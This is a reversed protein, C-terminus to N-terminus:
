QFDIHVFIMATAAYVTSCPLALGNTRLVRVAFKLM